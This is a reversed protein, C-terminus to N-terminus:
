QEAGEVEFLFHTGVDSALFRPKSLVYEQIESVTDFTLKVRVVGLDEGGDSKLRLWETEYLGDATLYFSDVSCVYGSFWSELETDM